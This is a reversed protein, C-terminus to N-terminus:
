GAAQDGRRRRDELLLDGSTAVMVPDVVLPLM